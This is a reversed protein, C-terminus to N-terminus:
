PGLREGGRELRDAIARWQPASPVPEVLIADLGAADLEHLASFLGRAYTTADDGLSRTVTAAVAGDSGGPARLLLLGVAAGADIRRRAEALAAARTPAVLLPTRPAYHRRDLGPSRRPAAAETLTAMAERVGPVVAALRQLDVAGPRLVVPVDGCLDIVTSEIGASCPGGDLIMDVRDGLSAAVHAATTPSLTQYRNASPAAVPAGVADLLAQAVPHSPARVGVSDGGGTLALPVSSARPVVLTLPGPWFEAALRDALPSWTKALARAGAVGLVHAILPHTSPRGKAAFIKAIAAPDLALGGLGYVTETPFAVLAGARLLAAARAIEAPKVM